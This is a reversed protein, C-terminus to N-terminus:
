VGAQKNNKEGFSKSSSKIEAILKEVQKSGFLDNQSKYLQAAKELDSLAGKKDGLHNKCQGRFKYSIALEQGRDISLSFDKQAASYEKRVLLELGRDAYATSAEPDVEISKSFDKIAEESRGLRSYALGRAEYLSSPANKSIEIAKSYDKIAKDIEGCVLFARARHAYLEFDEPSIEIAKTLDAIARDFHSMHMYVSARWRYAELSDPADGIADTFERIAELYEGSREAAMGREILQATLEQKKGLRLSRAFHDRLNQEEQTPLAYDKELFSSDLKVATSFDELAKKGINKRKYYRARLFYARAQKPDLNLAQELDAFAKEDEQLSLYTDARSIYALVFKPDAKIAENLDLLALEYKKLGCFARGRCVLIALRNAKDLEYADNLDALAKQFEDLELYALGRQLYISGRKPNIKMANTFEAVAGAFDGQSFRGLGAATLREIESEPFTGATANDIRSPASSLNDQKQLGGPKSELNQSPKSEQKAGEVAAPCICAAFLTTSSLFAAAFRRSVSIQM